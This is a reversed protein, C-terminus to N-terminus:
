FGQYIIFDLHFKLLVYIYFLARGLWCQSSAPLEANMM